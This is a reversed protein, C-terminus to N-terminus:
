IGNHLLDLTFRDASTIGPGQAGVPGAPGQAGQPGTLGIIGQPGQPGPVGQPGTLGIPGQTGVQPVWGPIQGAHFENGEWCVWQGAQNISGRGSFQAGYDWPVRNKFIFFGFYSDSLRRACCAIYEDGAGDRERTITAGGCLTFGTITAM